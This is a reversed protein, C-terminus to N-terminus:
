FCRMKLLTHCSYRSPWEHQRTGQGEGQLRVSTCLVGHIGRRRFRTLSLAVGVRNTPSEM